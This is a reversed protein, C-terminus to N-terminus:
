ALADLLTFVAVSVLLGIAALALPQRYRAFSAPSVPTRAIVPPPLVAGVLLLSSILALGLRLLQSEGFTLGHGDGSTLEGLVYVVGLALPPALAALLLVWVSRIPRRHPPPV